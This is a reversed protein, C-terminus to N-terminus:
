AACNLRSSRAMTRNVEPVDPRAFATSSVQRLKTPRCVSRVFVKGGRRRIDPLKRQRKIVYATELNHDARNQGSAGKHEVATELDLPNHRVGGAIGHRVNGDHVFHELVHQGPRIGVCFVVICFHYARVSAMRAPRLSRRMGSVSGFSLKRALSARAVFAGGVKGRHLM